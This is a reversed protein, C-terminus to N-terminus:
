RVLCAPIPYDPGICGPTSQRVVMKTNFEVSAPLSRVGATLDNVRGAEKEHRTVKAIHTSLKMQFLHLKKGLSGCTIFRSAAQNVPQM